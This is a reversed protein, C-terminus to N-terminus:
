KARKAQQTKSHSKLLVFPNPVYHHRCRWQGCELKYELFHYLWGSATLSSVRINTNYGELSPFAADLEEDADINGTDVAFKGGVKITFKMKESDWHIGDKWYLHSGTLKERHGEEAKKSLRDYWSETNSFTPSDAQVPNNLPPLLSICLIVCGFALNIARQLM